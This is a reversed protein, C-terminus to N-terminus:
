DDGRKPLEVQSAKLAAEREAERWKAKRKAMEIEQRNWEIWMRNDIPKNEEAM